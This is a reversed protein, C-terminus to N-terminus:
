AVRVARVVLRHDYGAAKTYKGSCTILTVEDAPDTALSSPGQGTM